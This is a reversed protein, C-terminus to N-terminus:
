GPIHVYELKMGDPDAFYLAYYGPVYPYEAPANLINAGMSQLKGFLRDVDARSAASFAVHHLGVNYLQFSNSRHQPASQWLTVMFGSGAFACWRGNPERHPAGEGGMVEGAGIEGHVAEYFRKSQAWDNVTLAIHHIGVAAM